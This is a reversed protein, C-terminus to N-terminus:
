LKIKILSLPLCCMILLLTKAKRCKHTVYPNKKHTTHLPVVTWWGKKQIPKPFKQDIREREALLVQEM